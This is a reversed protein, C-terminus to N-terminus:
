AKAIIVRIRGGENEPRDYYGTLSYEGATVVNLSSLYYDGNKLEYVLVDESITYKRNQAYATNGDVDTIKVSDLNAFRDVEGEDMKLVFPGKSVNYIKGGKVTGTVGGADYVYTGSTSMYEQSETETSSTVVGYTHMDGTADKLILRAVDGNADLQYWRVMGDSLTMGSLRSPYVRVAETKGYTDLIEVDDALTYSGLKTGAANVKGSLSTSSLTKIEVSGSATSVQVLQGVKVKKDDCRYSYENGDTARVYATSDSYTNGDADTYGAPQVKTVMGYIISTSQTPDIVAAVKGDRGLLLTASDGVKFTGLDSLAYAASTTELTYSKGAVTVSTPASAPSIAQISGTARGTYVWLTRMPKSWYVVDNTQIASFSSPSGSRYVAATQVDFPIKATWGSGAVLPGEMASNVLAVMDLEGAANVLNKGPKLLDIMYSKGDKTKTLGLNYFLYLADRRTLEGNQNTTPVGKDLELARYKAMQGAPYAGTFDTDAYGMLRLLMTVGEALTINREPEFYGYINGRVLGADVAAQIYGAAWHTRPVDPYPSTATEPGVNDRLPSAAIVMKTFEARTISRELMLDGQENGTMIDLAALAQAAEAESPIAAALAMSPLMTLVLVACLLGSLLRKKM